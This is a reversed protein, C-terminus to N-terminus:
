CSAEEFLTTQDSETLRRRDSKNRCLRCRSTLGDDRDADSHFYETTAPYTTGCATCTKEGFLLFDVDVVPPLSAVRKM